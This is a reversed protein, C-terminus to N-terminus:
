IKCTECSTVTTCHFSIPRTIQLYDSQDRTRGEHLDMGSKLQSVAWALTQGRKQMDAYYQIWALMIYSVHGKKNQQYRSKSKFHPM